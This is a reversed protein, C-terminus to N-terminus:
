LLEIRVGLDKGEIVIRIHAERVNFVPQLHQHHVCFSLFLVDEDLVLINEISTHLVMSLIVLNDISPLSKGALWKYVAQPNAFGMAEQIDRVTYGKQLMLAAIRKGTKEQEISVYLPKM